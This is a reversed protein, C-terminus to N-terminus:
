RVGQSHSFGGSALSYVVHFSCLSHTESSVYPWSYYTNGIALLTPPADLPPVSDFSFGAM